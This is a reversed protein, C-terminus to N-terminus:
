QYHIIPLQNITSPQCYVREAVSRSSQQCYLTVLPQHSTALIAGGAREAGM